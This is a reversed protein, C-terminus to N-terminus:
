ILNDQSVRWLSSCKSIVSSFTQLKIEKKSTFKIVALPLTKPIFLCVQCLLPVSLYTMWESINAGVEIKIAEFIIWLSISITLVIIVLFIFANVKKTDKYSNNKIHRTEIALVVIMFLLVGSYLLIVSLWVTSTVCHTTAWYYPLGNGVPIYEQTVKSSIPTIINWLILLIVKGVCILLAYIVLYKDVWYDSMMIMRKAHFIHYIRLLKLFLTSLILEMGISAWVKLHCLSTVLAMNDIILMRYMIMFLPASCLFYCGIMMLISLLPSIAKVEREKKWKIILVLNTTILGFLIVQAVLICTGLWPPLLQYETDFTDKPIDRVHPAAETLTINHNYPDYVGILKPKGKQIQLINVYTPSGQDTSFDIRGSAGQFAVHKLENKLISSITPVSEGLGYDEFSLNQSKISLLSNNIALAFAWVQDYLSNAYLNNQLSENTISAFEKLKDTYLQQFESYNVGSILETDNEVHLRYHLIFVGDMATLIEKKSCSTEIELIRDIGHEQIIYVYEPWTFNRQYAMCLLYAAQDYTVSWYSIRAGEERIVNFKEMIHAPSNEAIHIRTVLEYESNISVRHIFDISTSMFYFESETHVSTIRKWNFTRMLALMAENFASSSEIIHFLNSNKLSTNGRHMPSTSAAIHVYGGINPHSIIPSIASTVASCFLGIVGVICTRNYNVLERYVNIIGKSIVNIGCAESDINILKLEHGPLIDSRENIQEAALHGAPILEYAKDWIFLAASEDASVPYPQVNLLYLTPCEPRQHDQSAAQICVFLYGLALISTLSSIITRSVFQSQQNLSDLVSM